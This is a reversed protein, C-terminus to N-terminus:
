TPAAPPEEGRFKAWWKRIFGSLAVLAIILFKKAALLAALLVKFFGAKAAVAGAVLGAIGYTALKDTGPVYDAYRHGENFEVFGIVSTMAERIVPLQPMGSVANLVLVGRRGLVRVNYNLTHVSDNGFQLEKAWYLKHTTANYTPPEAWGILDVSEYGEKARRKNEERTGEQMEELLKTYDISEAGEDDVYGDQEYTIVVAWASDSLPSIETPILMGLVGEASGPPNGWATELLRQSGEPGIFRFAPPLELTALGDELHITGTQYGLKAEFEERTTGSQEQAGAPSAVSAVAVCATLVAALRSMRM